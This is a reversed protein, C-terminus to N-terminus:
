GEPKSAITKPNFIPFEPIHCVKLSSTRLFNLHINIRDGVGNWVQYLNWTIQRHGGYDHGQDENLQADHSIISHYKPEM